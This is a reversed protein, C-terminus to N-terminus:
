QIFLAGLLGKQDNGCQGLVVDKTGLGSSEVRETEVPWGSSASQLM